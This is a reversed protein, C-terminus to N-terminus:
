CFLLHKTQIAMGKQRVSNIFNERETTEHTNSYIEVGDKIEDVAIVDLHGKVEKLSSVKQAPQQLGARSTLHTDRVNKKPQVFLM